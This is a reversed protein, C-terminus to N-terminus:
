VPTADSLWSSPGSRTRPSRSFRSSTCPPERTGSLDFNVYYFKDTLYQIAEDIYLDDDPRRKQIFPGELLLKPSLEPPAEESIAPVKRQLVSHPPTPSSSSSFSTPVKAGRSQLPIQTGGDTILDIIAPLGRREERVQRELWEM